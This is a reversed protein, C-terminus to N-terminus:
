VNDRFGTGGRIGEKTEPRRLPIGEVSETRRVPMGEDNDPRRVPMSDHLLCAACGTIIADYQDSM